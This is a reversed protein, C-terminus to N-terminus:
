YGISRELQNEIDESKEPSVFVMENQAGRKIAEDISICEIGDIEVNQIYNDIFAAVEQNEVEKLYALLKQGNNGAGFIYVQKKM